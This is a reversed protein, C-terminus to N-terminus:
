QEINIIIFLNSYPKIINTGEVGYATYWPAVIRMEDGVCMMSLARNMSVPLDGSGVTFLKKTDILTEGEVESVQLHLMVEQGKQVTDASGKVTKSYWFGFDDMAYRNSDAQVFAECARDAADALRMNLHLQAMTVSDVDNKDSLHRVAQPKQGCSILICVVSLLICWNIKKLGSKGM